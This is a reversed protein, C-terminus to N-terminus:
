TADAIRTISPSIWQKFKLIYDYTLIHQHYARGWSGVVQNNKLETGKSECKLM